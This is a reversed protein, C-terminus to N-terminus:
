PKRKVVTLTQTFQRGLSTGTVRLTIRQAGNDVAACPVFTAPSDGNWAEVSVVTPTFGSFGSTSGAADAGGQYNAVPTNGTTCAVYATSAESKVFEGLARVASEGKALAKHQDTTSILTVIASLIAVFSISLIALTVLVELFTFGEESNPARRDSLRRWM